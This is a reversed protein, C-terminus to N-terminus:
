DKVRGRVTVRKAELRDGVQKFDVQVPLGPVIRILDVHKGDSDIFETVRSYLFTINGEKETKVLVRDPERELLVGNVKTRKETTETVVATPPAVVPAPAEVGPAVVTTTGKHVVVRNTVIGGAPQVVTHVTVRTGPAVQERAVVNGAEDVFQISKGYRYTEPDTTGIKITVSEPGTLHLLGDVKREQTVTAEEKVKTVTQARGPVNWLAVLVAGTLFLAPCLQILPFSATKM